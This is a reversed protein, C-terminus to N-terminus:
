NFSGDTARHESNRNEKITTLTNDTYEHCSGACDRLESVSYYVTSPNDYKKHANMDYDGAHCAACDPQYAASPWPIVQNNSTHCEICDLRGTGHDPYNGTAHSYSSFIWNNTTHCDDCQASTIFHGAEKGRADTGNHCSSCVGSFNDHDFTAPLWALTIHCTDCDASTTLHGIDKGEAIGGDHCSQCTGLVQDHDVRVTTWNNSVHCDECM